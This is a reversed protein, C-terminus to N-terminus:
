PRSGRRVNFWDVGRVRCVTEAAERDLGHAVLWRALAGRVTPDRHSRAARLWAREPPGTRESLLRAWAGPADAEQRWRVLHARAPARAGADILIDIAPGRVRPAPALQLCREALAIREAPEHAARARILLVDPHEPPPPVRVGAAGLVEAVEHTAALAGLVAPALAPAPLRHLMALTALTPGHATLGLADLVAAPEGVQVAGDLARAATAAAAWQAGARAAAAIADGEDPPAAHRPDALWVLPTARLASAIRGVTATDRARLVVRRGGPKGLVRSLKAEVLEDVWDSGHDWPMRDSHVRARTHQDFEARLRQIDVGDRLAIGPHPRLGEALVAAVADPIALLLVPGTM